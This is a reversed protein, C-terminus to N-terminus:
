HWSFGYLLGMYSFITSIEAVTLARNYIIFEAMKGGMPFIATAGGAGVCFADTPNLAGANGSASPASSTDIYLSSSAGNFIGGFAHVNTDSAAGTLVAGAYIDWAGQYQQITIGSATDGCFGQHGATSSLSAATIYTFPQTIPITPGILLQSNALAFSLTPKNGFSTDASVYTPQQTGTSQTVNRGNGSQDNWASVTGASQTIGLDGRLWLACGALKTPVFLSQKCPVARIRFTAGWSGANTNSLSLTWRVFRAVPFNNRLTLPTGSIALTVLTAINTFLTEDRTPSTQLALVVNSNTPAAVDTVDIWFTCDAYDTLDL